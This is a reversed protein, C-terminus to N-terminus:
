YNVTVITKKTKFDYVVDLKEGHMEQFWFESYTLNEMSEGNAYKKLIKKNSNEIAIRKTDSSCMAGSVSLTKEYNTKVGNKLIPMDNADFSAGRIGVIKDHGKYNKIMFSVKTEETKNEKTYIPEFYDSNSCVNVCWRYNLGDKFRLLRDIKFKKESPYKVFITDLNQEKLVLTLTDDITSQIETNGIRYLIAEKYGMSSIKQGTWTSSCFSLTIVRHNAVKKLTRKESISDQESLTSDEKKYSVINEQKKLSSEVCMWNIFIFLTFGVIRPFNM